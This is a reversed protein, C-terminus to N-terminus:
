RTKCGNRCGLDMSCELKTHSYTTWECRFLLISFHLINLVTHMGFLAKIKLTSNISRTRGCHLTSFYHLVHLFSHFYAHNRSVLSLYSEKEHMCCVNYNFVCVDLFDFHM